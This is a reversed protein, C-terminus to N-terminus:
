TKFTHEVQKPPSMSNHDQKMHQRKEKIELGTSVVMPDILGYVSIQRSHVIM